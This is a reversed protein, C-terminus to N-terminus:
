DVLTQAKEDRCYVVIDGWRRSDWHFYSNFFRHCKTYGALHQDMFQEMPLFVVLLQPQSTSLKMDLFREPDDFFRDLEDRYKSIAAPTASTLHLPPECTLFWSSDVLDPRHLMSHWPTSHCPTLFGVLAISTDSAIWEIVDLAGRENVRTFFVAAFINLFVLFAAIVATATTKQRWMRVAAYACLALMVSYLPQLFRVEKHSLLSFASTVLLVLAAFVSKRYNWMAVAFLPVFGMLMLPWAQFFYFHWPASGYFVLLNKVVNFVVFNAVPFTWFGYFVRDAVASVMGSVSLGLVAALFVALLCQRSSASAQALLRTGLLTWLVANTPRIFCSLGGLFVAAFLPWFPLKAGGSVRWPWLAMAATSALAELNNLFARTAFFWNWSSLLSLLLAVLATRRSRSVSFTFRYVLVDSLYAILAGAVRPAALVATRTNFLALVGYFASYVLVPLALRLAETYEWTIFGYGFVLRHAPETTQFFEDPQFFTAVLFANLTRFLLVALWVYLPLSSDRSRATGAGASDHM